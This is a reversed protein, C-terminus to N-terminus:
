LFLIVYPWAVSMIAALVLRYKANLVRQKNDEEASVFNSSSISLDAIINVIFLLTSFFAIALVIFDFVIM